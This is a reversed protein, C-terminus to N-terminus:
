RCIAGEMQAGPPIIPFVGNAEDLYIVTLSSNRRGVKLDFADQLDVESHVEYHDFGFAMALAEYDISRKVKTESLRGQHFLEQWQRVMGLADNHILYIDLELGYDAVTALEHFNMRFSGDGTVLVVRRGDDALRSGVAAGISAGLGFGMTGLGGSTLWSRQKDFRWYKATWMQHQGVDTAVIDGTHNANIMRIVNCPTYADCSRESMPELAEYARIQELWETRKVTVAMNLVQDIIEELPRIIAMHTEINKSVESDDIDMQVVRANPAYSDARGIIRDSFRVGFALMLDCQQIAGNAQMSGHMGALGLYNVHNNPVTDLGMLTSIIPADLRDSLVTLKDGIGAKKAGGGCYIVPRKADGIWLTLKEMWESEDDTACSEDSLDVCGSSDDGYTSRRYTEDTEQIYDMLIDKPIDVLVPGPRGSEAIEFAQLLAPIVDNRDRVLVNHKTVSMTMGTIDIEQFSDKGILHSSVQGCIVVLPISDMYATAIGTITNTAGPGSTAICVGTKGSSRAYGDAAHVAGQEHSTRIHVIGHNDKAYADYLPIVAGGPYGFVVEVGSIGLCKWIADSVGIQTKFGMAM